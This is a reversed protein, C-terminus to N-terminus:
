APLLTTLAFYSLPTERRLLVRRDALRDLAARANDAPM